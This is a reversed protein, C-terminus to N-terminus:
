SKEKMMMEDHVVPQERAIAMPAYSLNRSKITRPALLKISSRWLNNKMKETYIKM